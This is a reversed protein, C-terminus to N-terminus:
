KSKLIATYAMALSGMRLQKFEIKFLKQIDLSQNDMCTTNKKKRQINILRYFEIM